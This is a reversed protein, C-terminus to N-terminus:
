IDPFGMGSSSFCRCFHCFHLTLIWLTTKQEAGFKLIKFFFFFNFNQSLQTAGSTGVELVDFGCRSHYEVDFDHIVLQISSGPATKLSWLCEKNHPYSDPYGPSSFSGTPGSLEGGCGIFVNFKPWNWVPKVWQAFQLVWSASWSTIAIYFATVSFLCIVFDYSLLFSVPFMM